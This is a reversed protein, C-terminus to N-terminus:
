CFHVSDCIKTQGVKVDLFSGCFPDKVLLDKWNCKIKVGGNKATCHQDAFHSVTSEVAFARSQPDDPRKWAHSRQPRDARAVSLQPPPAIFLYFLACSAKM